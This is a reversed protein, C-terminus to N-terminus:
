IWSRRRIIECMKKFDAPRLSVVSDVCNGDPLMFHKEVISANHSEVAEIATKLGACHCSIGVECQYRKRLRDIENLDYDGPLAPYLSKCYLLTIPVSVQDFIRDLQEYTCKGTSLMIPKGYGAVHKVFNINCTEPSAIKFMEVYPEIAEASYNCFPTCLFKIGKCERALIPIWQPHMKIKDLLKYSDFSNRNTCLVDTYFFQFKAMTAGCEKATHILEVARELSGGHNLGIEAIIDM